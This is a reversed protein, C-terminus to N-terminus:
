FKRNEAVNIVLNWSSMRFSLASSMRLGRV